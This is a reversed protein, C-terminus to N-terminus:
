TLKMECLGLKKKKSILINVSIREGVCLPQPIAFHTLLYYRVLCWALSLNRFVTVVAPEKERDNKTHNYYRLSFFVKWTTRSSTQIIDNMVSHVANQVLQRPDLLYNKVM